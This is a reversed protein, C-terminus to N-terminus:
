KKSENGKRGNRKENIKIKRRKQRALNCKGENDSM